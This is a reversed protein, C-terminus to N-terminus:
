GMRGESQKTLGRGNVERRTDVGNVRMGDGGGMDSWDGGFERKELSYLCCFSISSSNASGGRASGGGEAGHAVATVPGVATLAPSTSEFVFFYEHM